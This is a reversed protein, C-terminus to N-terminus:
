NSKSDTNELISDPIEFYQGFCLLYKGNSTFHSIGVTGLLEGARLGRM